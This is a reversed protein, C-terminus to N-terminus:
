KEYKTLYDGDNTIFWIEQASYKTLFQEWTLQDGLPDNAKGPPHGFEKRLRAAAIENSSASLASAFIISLARSANDESKMISELTNSVIESYERKLKNEEKIINKRSDNWQM